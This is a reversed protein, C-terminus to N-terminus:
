VRCFYPFCGIIVCLVEDRSFSVHAELVFSVLIECVCSLECM